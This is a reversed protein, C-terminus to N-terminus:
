VSEAAELASLPRECWVATVRFDKAVPGSCGIDLANGPTLVIPVRIPVVDLLAPVTVFISDGAPGATTIFSSSVASTEGLPLRSDRRTNVEIGGLLDAGQNMSLSVETLGTNVSLWVEEVTIIINATPPVRIRLTPGATAGSTRSSTCSVLKEGKLFIWDPRDTELVFVASIEPSLEGAVEWQGKMELYKRMLQSFRGVEIHAM